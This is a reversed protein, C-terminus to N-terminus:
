PRRRRRMAGIGLATLTVLASTGFADHPRTGSACGQRSQVAPQPPVQHVNSVPLQAPSAELRLDNALAYFPLNARLRTVWVDQPHAGALAVDIDDFGTCPDPPVPVVALGSDEGAAGADPQSAQEDANSADSGDPVEVDSADEAVDVLGADPGDTADANAVADSSSEISEADLADGGADSEDGVTAEAGGDAACPQPATIVSTTGPVIPTGRCFAFYTSSLGPNGTRASAYSLNTSAPASLEPHEPYWGLLEPQGAAETLFSTGGNQAMLSQALSEYNSSSTASNWVLKSDDFLVEKFNQPRWRGEGIVYLVIDVQAGVGAAVMRLPLTPDAGPTVVRVPQMSRESCQPRLRLAIFDFGEGVYADITPQIAAPLAFGHAGLWIVLANPDTSRLTVTEYPGVVSQSLVDVAGSGSSNSNNGASCGALACGPGGYSYNIVPQTSADLAAFWEDRSLEIRAGGRVPLVWAFESPNGSYRIQDWLVTQATTISFAM